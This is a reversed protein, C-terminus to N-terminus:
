FDEEEDSWVILPDVESGAPEDRFAKMRANGTELKDELCAQALRGRMDAREDLIFAGNVRSVEERQAISLGRLSKVDKEHLDAAM